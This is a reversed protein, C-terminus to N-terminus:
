VGNVMGRCSHLHPRQRLCKGELAEDPALFQIDVIPHPRHFADRILFGMLLQLGM